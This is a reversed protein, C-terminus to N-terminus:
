KIRKLIKKATEQIQSDSTESILKELLNKAKETDNMEFYTVALDLQQQAQNNKISLGDPMPSDDINNDHAEAFDYDIYNTKKRNKLQIFILALFIGSIVSILAIFLLDRLNFSQSRNDLDEDNNKNDILNQIQDKEVQLDIVKTNNEIFEEPDVVDDSNIDINSQTEEVNLNNTNTSINEPATLTLLSKKSNQYTNRYSNNMISISEKAFDHPTNEIQEISPILIDLDKRILNINDDLFAGKNEVYMSWMTQYISIDENNGKIGKAMSWVTTIESADIIEPILSPDNQMIPDIQKISNTNQVESNTKMPEPLPLLIETSSKRINSPLFIFIDKIFNDQINLQFSFYDKAYEDSLIISYKYYSEFDELLTYSISDDDIANKTKYQNIRIDQDQIELNEIRFEIIRLNQSNLKIKPSSLLVESSSHVALLLLFFCLYRLM